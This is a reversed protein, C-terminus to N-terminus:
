ADKKQAPRAWHHRLVSVAGSCEVHAALVEPWHERDIGEHRVECALESDNMREGRLGEPLPEGDGM